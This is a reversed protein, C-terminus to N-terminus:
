ESRLAITPDVAIARRAPMWLALAATLIMAACVVALAVPDRNNAGYLYPTLVRSVALAVALGIGAGIALVASTRGLVTRFVQAPTAGIAVRIGIERRRRAVAYSLVGYLGTAALILTLLGLAGIGIAAVRAPLLPLRLQDSLSGADYIGINPDQELIARRLVQVADGAPLASRVIAITTANYAQALPRFVVPTPNEGLSSYKGDAAVGVIEM